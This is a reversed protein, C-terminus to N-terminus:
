KFVFRIFQSAEAVKRGSFGKTNFRRGSPALVTALAGTLRWQNMTPMKWGLGSLTLPDPVIPYRVFSTERTVCPECVKTPAITPDNLDLTLQSTVTIVQKYQLAFDELYIPLELADLKFRSLWTGVGFFWDIVFTFPIKDWIIQPNLEVGFADLYGRVGRELESLAKLPLIRYKIFAQVKGETVVTWKCPHHTNGTYDFSGSASYGTSALSCRDLVIKNLEADWRRLKADLGAVAKLMGKIDGVTPRWGFKYNLFGGALNKALGVNSKWFKVLDKLQGADLLFNPLSLQTLDPKLRDMALNAYELPTKASTLPEYKRAASV